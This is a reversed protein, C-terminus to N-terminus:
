IFRETGLSKSRKKGREKRVWFKVCINELEPIRHPAIKDVNGNM